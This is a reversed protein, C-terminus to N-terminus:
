QAEPVVGGGTSGASATAARSTISAACREAASRRMMVTSFFNLSAFEAYYAVRHAHEVRPPRFSSSIVRCRRSRRSPFTARIRGDRRVRLRTAPRQGPIERVAYKGPPLAGTASSITVGTLASAGLNIIVLVVRDRDRRLYAAVAENSATLPVLEGLALASNEARLHILRRYLNLLSSPDAEQMKM